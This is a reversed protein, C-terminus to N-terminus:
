GRQSPFLSRSSSKKRESKLDGAEIVTSHLYENAAYLDADPESTATGSTERYPDLYIKRWHFERHTYLRDEDVEKDTMLVVASIDETDYEELEEMLNDLDSIDALCEILEEFNNNAYGTKFACLLHVRFDDMETMDRFLDSENSLDAWEENDFYFDTELVKGSKLIVAVNVGHGLQRGM